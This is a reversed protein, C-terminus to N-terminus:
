DSEDSAIKPLKRLKSRGIGLRVENIDQLFVNSTRMVQQAGQLNEPDLAPSATKLKQLLDSMSNASSTCTLVVAPSIDFESSLYMIADNNTFERLRHQEDRRLQENDFLAESENPAVSTVVTEMYTKLTENIDRMESVQDSLTKLQSSQSTRKLLDRFLGAWQERLWNEIDTVRDFQYLPNNRRKSVIEDLLEFVNVSDVHAYQIADNDRNNKFTEYETYVAREVLIFIPIDQEVARSYESRTISQYRQFFKSESANPDTLQDSSAAGYRGGVILVLMDSVSVEAYCSEDLPRDYAYAIDGKESLVTEFGLSSIFLDLSARVHKLDYFTSSVFVRPKAM